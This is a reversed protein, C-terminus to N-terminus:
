RSYYHQFLAAVAGLVVAFLTLVGQESEALREVVLVIPKKFQPLIVRSLVVVISLLGLLIPWCLSAFGVAVAVAVATGVTGDRLSFRFADFTLGAGLQLAVLAFVTALAGILRWRSIRKKLVRVSWHTLAVTPNAVLLIGVIGVVAMTQLVGPQAWGYRIVADEHQRTGPIRQRLVWIYFCWVFLMNWCTAGAWYRISKVRPGILTNLVTDVLAIQRETVGRFSIDHLKVWIDAFKDRLKARGRKGILWDALVLGSVVLFDVFVFTNLWNPPQTPDIM